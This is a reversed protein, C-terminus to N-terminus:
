FEIGSEIINERYFVQLTGDKTFGCLAGVPYAEWVKIDRVKLETGHDTKIRVNM